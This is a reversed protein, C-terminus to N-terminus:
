KGILELGLSLRLNEREIKIKNIIDYDTSYDINLIDSLYNQVSVFEWYHLEKNLSQSVSNTRRRFINLPENIVMVSGNIILHFYLLWDAAIVAKTIKNEYKTLIQQLPETRFVCSSVNPLPNYHSFEVKAFDLGGYSGPSSTFTTGHSLQHHQIDLGLFVNSEDVLKSQTWSFDALPNADLQSLSRELFNQTCADDGEAIWVYNFKARSILNWRGAAYGSAKEFRKLEIVQLTSTPLSKLFLCLELYTGDTSGDDIILIEGINDIQNLISELRERVFPAQNYFYAFVSVKQKRM